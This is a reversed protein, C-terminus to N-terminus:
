QRWLWSPAGPEHGPCACPGDASTAPPLVRVSSARAPCAGCAARRRRVDALPAVFALFFQPSVPSLKRNRDRIQRHRRFLRLKVDSCLLPYQFTLSRSALRRKTPWWRKAHNCISGEKSSRRGRMPSRSLRLKQTMISATGVGGTGIGWLASVCPFSSVGAQKARCSRKLRPFTSIGSGPSGDAGRDPRRFLEAM